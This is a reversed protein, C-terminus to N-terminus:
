GSRARRSRWGRLGLILARTSRLRPQSSRATIRAPKTSHHIPSPPTNADPVAQIARGITAATAADQIASCPRDGTGPRAAPMATGIRNPATSSHSHCTSTVPKWTGCIRSGAGDCIPARKAALVSVSHTSKTWVKMREAMGPKRIPEPAPKRVATAISREGKRCRPSSGSPEATEAMGITPMAGMIIMHNPKSQCELAATTTTM